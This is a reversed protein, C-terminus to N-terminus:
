PLYKGFDAPLVPKLEFVALLIWDVAPLNLM